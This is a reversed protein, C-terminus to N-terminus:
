SGKVALASEIRGLPLCNVVDERTLWGKRAVKVGFALAQLGDVSHADPNISCKVGKEKALKWWRWDMDLRWPSANLEIITKTEAAAEIVAPVNVAYPERKLLLRGTLHGLMTVHPNEMAAIIRRTMEGEGLTFANHVSAVVYDLSALMEDDFDLSGDKLIDCETGSFLRFSDGFEENLAAVEKVQEKLRSEDLGNAQFSSKSHDAIGLYQLGLEQAGEAMERLTNKGDSETTHNHFTGRLNELEILKPLNGEDAAEVEGNNERLAPEVYDLGLFGYLDEESQITPAPGSEDSVPELRYENLSFGKKLCRGRIEVNHEKSGTFYALAFPYEENKVARLDCQLGNEFRVSSKTEGHVLVEEVGELAVFDEMVDGPKKTAVLFDLDHVVEKGRRYSGAVDVRSVAPHSRLAELTREAAEAVQEMRFLSAHTERYEIAALIKGETKKGFGSLGAVKGEECAVKLEEVSSVDLQEHLAKIKKAGLGQIEFLEFITEPFEGRLKEYFELKGSSALEHLKAALADGIGKIGKLNEDKAMQVIDGSFGRVTEAGTRYARTKFPNEGKLELLLAINDLTDALFDRDAM